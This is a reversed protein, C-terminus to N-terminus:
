LENLANKKIIILLEENYHSKKILFNKLFGVQFSFIRFNRSLSYKLSYIYKKSFICITKQIKIKTQKKFIFKMLFHM